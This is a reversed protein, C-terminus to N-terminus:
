GKWCYRDGQGWQGCIGQHGASNFYIAQEGVLSQKRVMKGKIMSDDKHPLCSGHKMEGLLYLWKM